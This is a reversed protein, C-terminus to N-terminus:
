RSVPGAAGTAPRPRQSAAPSGRAMKQRHPRDVLREARGAGHLLDIELDVRGLDDAQMPPLPAPLLVSIFITPPSIAASAPSISSRPRASPASWEGPPPSPSEAQAEHMLLQREARVQADELVERDLQGVHM